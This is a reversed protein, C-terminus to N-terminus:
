RSDRAGAHWAACWRWAWRGTGAAGRMAVVSARRVLQWQPAAAALLWLGLWAAGILQALPTSGNVRENVAGALLELVLVAMSALLWRRASRVAHAQGLVHWNYILLLSGFVPTFLLSWAAM